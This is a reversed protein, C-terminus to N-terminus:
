VDITVSPRRIVVNDEFQQITQKFEDPNEDYSAQKEVAAVGLSTIQYLGSNDHPGIKKVLGYDALEPLRTNVYGRDKNILNAINVATNREGDALAELILFDTPQTLRM